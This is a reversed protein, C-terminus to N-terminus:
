EKNAEHSDSVKVDDEIKGAESRCANQSLSWEGEKRLSM